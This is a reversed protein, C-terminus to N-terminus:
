KLNRYGLLVDALHGKTGNAREFSGSLILSNGNLDAMNRSFQLNLATIGKEELGFTENKDIKGNGNLDQYLKLAKFVPDLRNIKGDKNQDHKALEIFGNAAGNQDGFVEKGNDIKGNGNQDYVLMADDGKVWATQDLKGDANIDFIAGEGAKTLNLGDGNMDLVLPDAEIIGMDALSLEQEETKKFKMDVKYARQQVISDALSSVTMPESNEAAPHSIEKQRAKFAERTKSFMGDFQKKLRQYDEDDKSIMRLMLDFDRDVTPDSSSELAEDTTIALSLNLEAEIKTESRFQSITQRIKNYPSLEVLDKELSPQAESKQAKEEPFFAELARSFRTARTFRQSIISAAFTMTVGGQTFSCMRINPFFCEGM